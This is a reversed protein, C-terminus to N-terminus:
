FLRLYEKHYNRQSVIVSQIIHLLHRVCKNKITAWERGQLVGASMQFLTALEALSGVKVCNASDHRASCQGRRFMRLQQAHYRMETAVVTLKITM